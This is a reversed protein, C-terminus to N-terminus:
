LFLHSVQFRTATFEKRDKVTQFVFEEDLILVHEETSHAQFKVLLFLAQECSGIAHVQDPQAHIPIDNNDLKINRIFHITQPKLASEEPPLVDHSTYFGVVVGMSGNFLGKGINKRSVVRAGVKLKLTSGVPSTLLPRKQEGTRALDVAHYVTAEGDIKELIRDNADNPLKATCYLRISEVEPLYSTSIPKQQKALLM